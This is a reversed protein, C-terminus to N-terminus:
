EDHSLAGWNVGGGSTSAAARRREGVHVLTKRRRGSGMANELSKSKTRKVGKLPIVRDGRKRKRQELTLPGKIRSVTGQTAQRNFFFHDKREV